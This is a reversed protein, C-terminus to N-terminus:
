KEVGEAVSVPDDRDWMSLMWLASKLRFWCVNGQTVGPSFSDINLEMLFRRWPCINPSNTPTTKTQGPFTQTFHKMSEANAECQLSSVSLRGSLCSVCGTPKLAIIWSSTFHIAEKNSKCICHTGSKEWTQDRHRHNHPFFHLSMKRRSLQWNQWGVSVLHTPRRESHVFTPVEQGFYLKIAKFLCLM